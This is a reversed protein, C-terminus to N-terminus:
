ANNQPTMFSPEHDDKDNEANMKNMSAIYGRLQAVIALAYVAVIPILLYRM